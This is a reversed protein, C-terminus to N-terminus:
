MCRMWRVSDIKSSAELFSGMTLYWGFLSTTPAQPTPQRHERMGSLGSPGLCAPKWVEMKAEMKSHGVGNMLPPSFQAAALPPVSVYMCVISLFCMLDGAQNAEQDGGIEGLVAQRGAGRPLCAGASRQLCGCTNVDHRASLAGEQGLQPPPRGRERGATTTRSHGVENSLLRTASRAATTLSERPPCAHRTVGGCVRSSSRRGTCHSFSIQVPRSAALARPPLTHNPTPCSHSCAHVHGSSCCPPLQAALSQPPPFSDFISIMPSPSASSIQVFFLGGWRRGSSMIDMTAPMDM